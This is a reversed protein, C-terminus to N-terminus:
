EVLMDDIYLLGNEKVMGPYKRTTKRKFYLKLSIGNFDNAKLSGTTHNLGISSWNTIVPVINRVVVVKVFKFTTMIIM